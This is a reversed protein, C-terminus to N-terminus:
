RKFFPMKINRFNYFVAGFGLVPLLYWAKRLGSLVFVPLQLYIGSYIWGGAIM